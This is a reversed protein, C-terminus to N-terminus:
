AHHPRTGIVLALQIAGTVILWIGTLYVLTALSPGPWILIVLGGLLLIAGLAAAVLRMTGDYQNGFAAALEAIGGIIWSAGIVTAVAVLSLLINRVCFVGALVFLVGIVGALTRSAPDASTATVANVIRIIGHVLLWIGFVAAGVLLTAEPWALVMIGLVVSTVAGAAALWWIMSETRREDLWSHGLPSQNSVTESM